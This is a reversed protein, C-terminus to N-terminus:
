NEIQPHFRFELDGNLNLEGINVTAMNLQYEQGNQLHTFHIMDDNFSIQWLDPSFVMRVVTEIVVVPIETQNSHKSLTQRHRGDFILENIPRTSIKNIEGNIIEIDRNAIIPIIKVGADILDILNAIRHLDVNKFLEDKVTACVETVPFWEIKIQQFPRAPIRVESHLVSFDILALDTQWDIKLKKINTEIDKIREVRKM